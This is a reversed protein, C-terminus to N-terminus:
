DWELRFEWSTQKLSGEEKMVWWGNRADLKSAFSLRVSMGYEYRMFYAEFFGSNTAEGGECANM